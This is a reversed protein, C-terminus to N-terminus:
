GEPLPLLFLSYGVHQTTMFLPPLSFLAYITEIVGTRKGYAVFASIVIYVFVVYIAVYVARRKILSQRPTDSTIPGSYPKQLSIYSQLINRSGLIYAAVFPGLTLLHAQLGETLDVKVMAVAAPFPSRLSPPQEHGPELAFIPRIICRM